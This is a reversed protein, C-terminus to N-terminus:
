ASAADSRPEEAALKSTVGFIADLGDIFRQGDGELAAQRARVSPTHVLVSALHRLAAETEASAGRKKARALESELLDFIHARFAVIAPEISREASYRAAADSVLERADATATLEEMPAHLSVTELDLLAIGPLSVIAPDVNRPMGLDIVLRPQDGIIASTGIVTSSTCTIVVDADLMAGALDRQVRLGHKVAFADGRGSPSFVSIMTVDRDRLAAVTTAAYQGTGVVLVRALSWDSVRGSALELALRVLSRGAGGVSTRTKVGRSTQTARQFLQELDGSTTGDVRARQLARGVQGAIEDEGVVISELGSTVAFLHTVVEDSTLQTVAARLESSPVASAASMVDIVAEAATVPSSDDAIELYAEFRNCTALVVAGLVVPTKEVLGGVAGPSAFSLKELLDFSANRHNATLCLLV